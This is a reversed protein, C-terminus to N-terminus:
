VKHKELMQKHIYLYNEIQERTLIPSTITQDQLELSLCIPHPDGLEEQTHQPTGPYLELTPLTEPHFELTSVLKYCIFCKLYNFTQHIQHLYFEFEFHNVFIHLVDASHYFQTEILKTAKIDRILLSSRM